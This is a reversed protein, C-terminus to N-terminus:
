GVRSVTGSVDLEKQSRMVQAVFAELHIVPKSGLRMNHDYTAAHAAVAPCLRPDCGRLVLHTLERLILEGPICQALLEYFKGRIEHLRKPSQETLADRAIEQVYICWDPVPIDHGDGALNARAVKAAEFMLIARRMNCGSKEALSRLFPASPAQLGEKAGISTVLRSLEEPACAPVRIALCRSRLPPILRSLSTAILVLRCTAMYKEMTRRLAQQAARSMKDAENLVVVRFRPKNSGAVPMPATEAMERIMSMVIVRDYNGADSPNIDIHHPSSLTAVDISKSDTVEVSKHELKMSAASDGFQQRLLAMVRTKKGAGSPGYFLLHPFDETSALRQLVHTVEPHVDLDALTKPRHKDVWLM